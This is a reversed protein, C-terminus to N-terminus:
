SVAAAPDPAALTVMWFRGDPTDAAGDVSESLEPTGAVTVRVALADAGAAVAVIPKVAVSPLWVALAWADSVTCAAGGGSKESLTFGVDAVSVAPPLAVTDRSAVGCFWNAAFTGTVSVPNGVPTVAWGDENVKLGPVAEVTVNVAAAPVGAPVPVTVKVPVDPENVCVADSLRATVAADPSKVSWSEGVESVTAGPPLWVTCIEEVPLGATAILPRGAPTVALGLVKVSAAPPDCVTVRLAALVAAAAVALTVNVPVDPGSVCVAVRARVTAVVPV